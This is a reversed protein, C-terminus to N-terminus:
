SIPLVIASLQVPVVSYGFVNYDGKRAREGWNGGGGGGGRGSKSITDKKM